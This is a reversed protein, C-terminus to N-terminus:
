DVDEMSWRIMKIFGEMQQPTREKCRVCEWKTEWPYEERPLSSKSYSAVRYWRGDDHIHYRIFGTNQLSLLDPLIPFAELRWDGVEMVLTRKEKNSYM